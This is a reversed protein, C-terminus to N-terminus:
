FKFSVTAPAVSGPVDQGSSVKMELIIDYSGALSNMKAGRIKRGEEKQLMPIFDFAEAPVYMDGPLWPWGPRSSSGIIKGNKKVTTQMDFLVPQQPPYTGWFTFGIKYRSEKFSKFLEVPTKEKITGDKGFGSISVKGSMSQSYAISNCLVFGIVLFLLFPKM